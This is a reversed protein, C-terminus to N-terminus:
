KGWEPLKLVKQYAPVVYKDGLILLKTGGAPLDSRGIAVPGSDAYGDKWLGVAYKIVEMNGNGHTPILLKPKVQEMQNFGKKNALSMASYSNELQSLAVDVTGLQDLQDQTLKEQGLDGFHVIRLGGMDVIYIYDSGDPPTGNHAAKIAKIVVDAQKIEGEQFKLQQGPFSKAFESNIHDSHGHTTLLIDRAAAPSTLQTPDAIDILVRTGQPSVLEFQANGEYTIKVKPEQPASTPAPTDPAPLPTDAAPPGAPPPTAAPACATAVLSLLALPAILQSCKMEKEEETFSQRIIELNITGSSPCVAFLSGASIRPWDDFICQIGLLKSTYNVILIEHDSVGGDREVKEHQGPVHGV